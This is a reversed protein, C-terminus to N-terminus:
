FKYLSPSGIGSSLVILESSKCRRRRKIAVVCRRVLGTRPKTLHIEYM